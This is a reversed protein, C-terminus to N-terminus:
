PWSPHGLRSLLELPTMEMLVDNLENGTLMVAAHKLSKLSSFGSRAAVDSLTRKHDRVSSYARLFNASTIIRATSVLGVKSFWRDLTRRSSGVLTTFQRVSSIPRTACYAAVTARRIRAPLRDVNPAIAELM